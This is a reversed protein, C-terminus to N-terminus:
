GGEARRRNEPSLAGPSEPGDPCVIIQPRNVASAAASPKAPASEAPQRLRGFGEDADVGMVDGEDAVRDPQARGPALAAGVDVDAIAGAADVRQLEDPTELHM